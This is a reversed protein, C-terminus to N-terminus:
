KTKSKGNAIAVIRPTKVMFLLSVALQRQHANQRKSIPRIVNGRAVLIQPFNEEPQNKM